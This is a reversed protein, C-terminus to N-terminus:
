KLMKDIIAEFASAPYAGSIVEYEGTENNVIVNGPTGTIGFINQGASMQSKVKDSYKGSSVCNILDDKNIGNEGAIDYFGTLSFNNNSYKKYSLTIIKYLIDKNQEAICELAEAGAQAEDHFNLPFHQFITNIDDGYKEKIITPTGENHLKACFPCELDSYEIWTIKADPNGDIYSGSKLKKLIDKDLMLFGNESRKAFPDFNEPLALSFGGDPLEKLYPVIQGGDYLTKTNFIIAPISKLWNEKMFKSVWKESFDKEIFTAQSLFPLAKLQDLIASTQCDSCREDNIVTIEINQASQTKTSSTQINQWSLNESSISGVYFALGAIIIMLVIIIGYFIHLMQSNNQIERSNEEIHRSNERVKQKTSKSTEATNQLDKEQESLEKKIAM